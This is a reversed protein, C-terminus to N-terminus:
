KNEFKLKAEKWSTLDETHIRLSHINSSFRKSHKMAELHTGNQYFENIQNVNEWLTMTYWIKLNWNPTLKYKICKSQKLEKIIQGNFKLFALLKSYSNLEIKTISVIM